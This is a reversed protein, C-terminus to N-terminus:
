FKGDAGTTGTASGIKVSAGQIAGGSVDKVVGSVTATAGGTPGGSESGGCAALFIPTALAMALASISTSFQMTSGTPTTLLGRSARVVTREHRM